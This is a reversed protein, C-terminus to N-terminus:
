HTERNDPSRNLRAAVTTNRIVWLDTLPGIGGPVPTLARARSRVQAFDVDGVIRVGGTDHVANIGVDLVVTGERIHEARILEPSGAAVILVDAHRTHWGLQGGRNVWEDVSEAAAQRQLALLLAPKGVNASRGVVVILANHYFDRSDIGSQEIWEDLAHFASAATPSVFRPTGLALLGVNEPHVGDVDKLPALAGFVQAEDLHEPLPRLILIASIAPDNNLTTIAEIVETPGADGALGIHTHAVNLEAATAAIRREYLAARNDDGVSLTALRCDIGDSALASVEQAVTVKLTDALKRGDIIQATM